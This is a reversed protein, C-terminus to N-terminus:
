PIPVLIISDKARIEDEFFRAYIDERSTVRKHCNRCLTIGNDVDFRLEPYNSFKRIHHAQVYKDTTKCNVFICKYGDRSFVKERWEKYQVSYYGTKYARSIGGQWNWHNAGSFKGKRNISQKRRVWEPFKYGIQNIGYCVQCTKATKRKSGGCQYCIDYQSEDRM